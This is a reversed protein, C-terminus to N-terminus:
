MLTFSSHFFSVPLLERLEEVKKAQRLQSVKKKIADDDQSALLSTVDESKLIVDTFCLDLKAAMAAVGACMLQLLSICKVLGRM